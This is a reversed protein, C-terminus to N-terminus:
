QRIRSRKTAKVQIVYKGSTEGVKNTSTVYNPDYPHLGAQYGAKALRLALDRLESIRRVIQEADTVRARKM